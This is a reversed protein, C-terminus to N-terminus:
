RWKKDRITIRSDISPQGDNARINHLAQRQGNPSYIVREHTNNPLVAIVPKKPVALPVDWEQLLCDGPIICTNSFVGLTLRPMSNSTFEDAESGHGIGAGGVTILKNSDASFAMSSVQAFTKISRVLVGSALDLVVTSRSKSKLAVCRWDSSFVIQCNALSGDLENILKTQVSSLQDGAAGDWITVFNRRTRDSSGPVVFKNEVTALRKGNPSIAIQYIVDGDPIQKRILSRGTTTDWIRITKAGDGKPRTIAILRSGDPNFQPAVYDDVENDERELVVPLKGKKTVDWVKRNQWGDTQLEDIAALQRGDDSLTMKGAFPMDKRFIAQRTTVDFVVVPFKGQKPSFNGGGQYVFRSGDRSIALVGGGGLEDHYPVKASYLEDGSNVDLVRLIDEGQIQNSNPRKWYVIRRGDGSFAFGTLYDHADFRWQRLESHSLRDWYHWEFHRLDSDDAKPFQEDLLEVVRKINDEKWATSISNMSAAFLTRRLNERAAIAADRERLAVIRQEAEARQALEAVHQKGVADRESQTARLSQWLSLGTGVLLAAAVLGATTFAVRNKRSFKRLLYWASPPCAQVTDDALYRLVDAAFGNATEYRRSRDKELAKLVIWDLEGCVLRPLKLPEVGRVAAISPLEETTSLRTSPKPPEEERVLRLVEMLAADKVRKRTLPTTGTLLEFLLVGLSYIDSRTDVDQNNLEAQEPSMYELTGVVAGFGTFLTAETLKHGTAKAVGFDIVKVVPKGDYPAVLINNPKLDRHIIGKQHAHQVAQCVDAFLALRDRISIKKGDCYTTIPTGKVLEMVFFPRGDPTVGGDLVKAINPHDMLALAQREAEFRAVVQRSDMGAKIVKLAVRRQMPDTQEAMWVAGMGGEGIRELLKYKGSIVTGAAETPGPYAATLGATVLRTATPAEGMAFSGVELDAHAALLREVRDRLEDDGRTENALFDARDTPAKIDKARAFLSEVRKPDAPV